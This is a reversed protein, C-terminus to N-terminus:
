ALASREAAQATQQEMQHKEWCSLEDEGFLDAHYRLYRPADDTLPEYIKERVWREGTLITCRCYACEHASAAIPLFPKDQGLTVMSAM